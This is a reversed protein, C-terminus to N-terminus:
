LHILDKCYLILFLVGVWGSRFGLDSRKVLPMPVVLFRSNTRGEHHFDFYENPLSFYNGDFFYFLRPYFLPLFSLMLSWLVRDRFFSFDLWTDFDFWTQVFIATISMLWFLSCGSDIASYIIACLFSLASTYLGM